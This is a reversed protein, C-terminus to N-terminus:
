SLYFNLGHKYEENNASTYITGTLLAVNYAKSEDCDQVKM